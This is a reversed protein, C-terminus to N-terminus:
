KKLLRFLTELELVAKLGIESDQLKDRLFNLVDYIEGKISIFEIIKSINPEKIGREKMEQIVGDIGVKDLKDISRNVEIFKDKELDLTALFSELIKRHSIHIVHKPLNFELFGYHLVQLIEADAMLSETGVIDIDCQYFERKRGRRAAEARWVRNIEYRKYPFKLNDKNIAVFRAFPVTQDYRMAIHREGHDYFHYILKEEEGYKGMLVDAYELVPTELQGYGFSRFINRWKEIVYQRIAMQKPTYDFFGQLLKPEIQPM